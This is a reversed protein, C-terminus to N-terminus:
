KDKQLAQNFRMIKSGVSTPCSEVEVTRCGRFRRKPHECFECSLDDGARTGPTRRKLLMNNM